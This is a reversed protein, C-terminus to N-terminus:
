DLVRGLKDFRTIGADDLKDWALRHTNLGVVLVWRKTTKATRSMLCVTATPIMLATSLVSFAALTVFDASFAALFFYVLHLDRTVNEDRKEEKRKRKRNTSMNQVTNRATVDDDINMILFGPTPTRAKHVRAM